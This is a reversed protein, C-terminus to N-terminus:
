RNRNNLLNRILNRIAIIIAIIIAWSFITYSLDYLTPNNEFFVEPILLAVFIILITNRLIHPKYIHPHSFDLFKKNIKKNSSEMKSIAIELKKIYAKGVDTTCHNQLLTHKEKLENLSLNAANKLQDQIWQIEYKVQQAEDETSYEVGDVTRRQIHLKNIQKDLKSLRKEKAKTVCEKEIESRKRYLEELSEKKFDVLLSDMWEAEKKAKAAEERTSYEEDEFTRAIKDFHNLKEDLTDLYHLIDKMLLQELLKQYNKKAYKTSEETSLDDKAILNKIIEICYFDIVHNKYFETALNRIEEMANRHHVLLYEYIKDCYPDNQFAQQLIVETKPDHTSLANANNMLMIAIQRDNESPFGNLISSDGHEALCQAYGYALNLVSLRVGQELSTYTRSDKFVSNFKMEAGISSGIKAVGNFAMHVAGSAMNMAGAKAAGAIAGSLGFGGGQWRGRNQRRSVRYADKKEELDAIEQYQEDIAKYADYWPSVDIYRKFFTDIDIDYIGRKLLMQHAKQVTPEVADYFCQPAHNILDELRKINKHYSTYFANVAEEAYQYFIGISQNSKVRDESLHLTISGICYDMTKM